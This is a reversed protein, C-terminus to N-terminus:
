RTSPPFTQHSLNESRKWAGEKTHPLRWFSIRVIPSVPITSPLMASSSSVTGRVISDDTIVVKKKQVTERIINHKLDSAIKRFMPDDIIYTRGLYANKIVGEETPMGLAETVGICVSRGSDPIPIVVMDSKSGNNTGYLEKLSHTEVLAKGLRKRVNHVTRGEIVSDPRGYYVWEFACHSSKPELLQKEMFGEDNKRILAGPVLDRKEDIREGMSEMVDIPASESTVFLEDENLGLYLPRIGRIDRAAILESSCTEKDLLTIVASFYANPLENMAETMATEILGYANMKNLILSVLVEENLRHGRDFMYGDLAVSLKYRDSELEVPALKGQNLSEGSACGIAVYDDPHMFSKFHEDFVKSVLGTGKWTRISHDGAASIGASEQGRHQVGYLINLAKQTANDASYVGIVGQM